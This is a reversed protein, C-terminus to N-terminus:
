RSEGEEEFHHEHDPSDPCYWPDPYVKGGCIEVLMYHVLDDKSFVRGCYRCKL